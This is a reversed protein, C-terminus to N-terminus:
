GGCIGDDPGVFTCPHAPDCQNSDTCAGGEPMPSSATAAKCLLGGLPQAVCQTGACCSPQGGGCVSEAPTCMCPGLTDGHETHAPIASVSVTIEHANARNGPPIHCITQTQTAAVQPIAAIAQCVFGNAQIKGSRLLSPPVSYGSATISFTDSTGRDGNDKVAIRFTIATGVADGNGVIVTGDTTCPFFGTISTSEMYFGTGHDIFHVHGTVSGDAQTVGIAFSAKGGMAGAIWGGGTVGESSGACAPAAVTAALAACIAFRM